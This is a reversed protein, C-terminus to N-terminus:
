DRKKDSPQRTMSDRMSSNGGINTTNNANSQFGGFNNQNSTQNSSQSQVNNSANNMNPGTTAGAGPTSPTTSSSSAYTHDTKKSGIRDFASRIADVTGGFLLTCLANEFPIFPDKLGLLILTVRQICGYCFLFVFTLWIFPDIM